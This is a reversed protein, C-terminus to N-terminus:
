QQQQLYHEATRRLGEDVSVPPTWGLMERVKTIDVQLTGCLRAAVERKGLLTAGAMLVAAPVPILRAPRGMARALRRILDTTSLDEGDSVLFTQNAASPHTLCADIASVLNGLYVLSRQNRAAGLPLPVGWAVWQMLCLFNAKVEPGYVLPPRIIVVEMGTEAAIEQLGLEAEHKSIGYADQPAPSDTERYIVSGGEGNVKVSSLFVFRWVGAEAAQRALNLTGEVNVKRFEALPDAASDQMVHVRAALHVLTDVGRLTSRWNTDGGVNGVQAVECDPPLRAADDVRRVGARVVHERVLLEQCLAQGVLGTAGTVLAVSM